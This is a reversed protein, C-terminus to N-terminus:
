VDRFGDSEYDPTQNAAKKVPLEGHPVSTKAKPSRLRIVNQKTPERYAPQISASATKIPEATQAGGNITLVLQTVANKLSESQASLEVASQACEESTSANQQTMQDLQNMAKTIESCGRAQEQSASSIETAMGSVAGVNTVVQEFVEGCERTIQSGTEVNQKTDAVMQNVKNISNELLSGIEEAAIGSMRALNGVEEAVVAFGKGHEGARAAEVSANFSLLETKHVIDNIVKTKKDIQEIVRVVEIMGESSQNIKQMSLIMKEIIRKGQNVTDQSKSSTEAASAANESNKAVMSNMEEVSAATEELSAAQEAAAQSLQESASAIQQSATSVQISGESLMKIVSQISRGMARLIAFALLCAILMSALSVTIVLNRSNEYLIEANANEEKMTKDNRDILSQLDSEAEKRIEAMQKMFVMAGKDDGAYALKQGEKAKEWWRDYSHGIKTWYSRAEESSDKTSQEIEERFETDKKHMEEMMARIHEKDDELIINAQGLALLRFSARVRNAHRIRPVSKTITYKLSGDLKEMSNIGVVSICVGGLIAIMLVFVIKINLSVKKM